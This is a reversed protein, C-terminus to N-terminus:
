REVGPGTKGEVTGKGDQYRITMKPDDLQPVKDLDALKHIAYRGQGKSQVAHLDDLYKVPGGHSQNLNTDIAVHVGVGKIWDLMAAWSANLREKLSKAPLQISNGQGPQEPPEQATKTAEPTPQILHAPTGAAKDAQYNKAMAAFRQADALDKALQANEEKLARHEGAQIAAENLADALAYDATAWQETAGAAAKGFEAIETLREVATQNVDVSLSTLKAAAARHGQSTKLLADSKEGSKVLAEIVEAKDVLGAAIKANTEILDAQIKKTYEDMENVKQDTTEIKEIAVKLSTVAEDREKKMRQYDDQKATGSAKAAEREAKYDAEIKAIQAKLDAIIKSDAQFLGRIHDTTAKAKQIELGHTKVIAKYAGPNIHKRGTEHSSKGRALGTVEATLTQLARMEKRDIIFVKGKDNTKDAIIHAHANLLVEGNEIHGEDLHIDCRLVKHNTAKQYEEIWSKTIEICHKKYAAVDFAKSNLAPRPLNLVGEWVPSFNKAAKAQRSALAMKADLTQAVKGKDDLVCITGLSLDPTLLYTPKVTRDAHNVSQSASKVPKFNVSAGTM